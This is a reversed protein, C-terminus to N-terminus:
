KALIAHLKAPLDTLHGSFTNMETEGEKARSLKDTM